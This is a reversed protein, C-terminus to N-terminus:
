RQGSKPTSAEEKRKEVLKEIQEPSTQSALEEHLWHLVDSGALVSKAEAPNEYVVTSFLDPKTAATRKFKEKIARPTSPAFMAEQLRVRQAQSKTLWAIPDLTAVGKLFDAKLYAAREKDPVIPSTALWNPWDGWPDVLDLVKIRADVGSALIAIAAGSGEAFMGVRTMDLDGRTTLYDLIMQVDHASLALSLQLESVFWEKMPRDHYRRGTFASVFGVAAFGDKTVLKQFGENRFRDEHANFGYLFLIVPPNKVGKPRSIYLDIPDAWRWQVRVMQFTHTGEDAVPTSEPVKTDLESRNVAPTSLTEVVVGYRPDTPDAIPPTAPVSQGVCGLALSLVFISIVSSRLM